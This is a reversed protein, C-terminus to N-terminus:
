ALITPSLLYYILHSLSSLLQSTLSTPSLHASVPFLLYSVPSSPRSTGPAFLRSFDLGGPLAQNGMGAGAGSGPGWPSAPMGQGMGQGPAQGLPNAAGAGAGLAGAQGMQQQLAQMHM